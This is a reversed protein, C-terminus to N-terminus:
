PNLEAHRIHSTLYLAQTALVRRFQHRVWVHESKYSAEFLACLPDLDDSLDYQSVWHPAPLPQSPRPMPLIEAHEEEDAPEEVDLQPPPPTPERTPAAPETVYIISDDDLDQPRSRLSKRKGGVVGCHFCTEGRPFSHPCYLSVDDEILSERPLGVLRPSRRRENQREEHCIELFSRRPRGSTIEFLEEHFRSLQRSM